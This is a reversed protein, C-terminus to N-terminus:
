GKGRARRPALAGNAGHRQRNSLGALHRALYTIQAHTQCYQQGFGSELSQPSLIRSRAYRLEQCMDNVSYSMMGEGRVAPLPVPLPTHCSSVEEGRGEGGCTQPHSPSRLPAWFDLHARRGCARRLRLGFHRLAFKWIDRSIEVTLTDSKWLATCRTWRPPVPPVRGSTSTM